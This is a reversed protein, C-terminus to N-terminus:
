LERSRSDLRAARESQERHMRQRLKAAYAPRGREVEILEGAAMPRLSLEVIRGRTNSGRPARARNEYTVEGHSFYVVVYPLPAEPYELVSSVVHDGLVKLVVSDGARITEVAVPESM